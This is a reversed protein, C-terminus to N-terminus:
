ACGAIAFRMGPTIEMGNLLATVSMPRGGPKQVRTLVLAGAGTAVAIGAKDVAVIEGPQANATALDSAIVSDIAPAIASSIASSIAPDTASTIASDIAPATAPAIVSNTATDAALNDASDTATDAALNGASDTAAGVGADVTAQLVKLWVGGLKARAMPRPNFARVKRELAVASLRWDLVAEAKQLKHAYCTLSEDQPTAALTQAALASLNAALLEGALRALRDHLSGGTDDPQIPISSAALLPGRDLGPEMQMLSVGTTADGAELARQIPAAGRWRPLLSAHLNVCGLAPIALVAAPLLLGYAVVVMLEPRLRRLADLTAEDAFSEPQFVAAGHARAFQKIRSPRPKKGRGAPRDPQTYVGVLEVRPAGLLATLCPISFAPTGAFVVRM